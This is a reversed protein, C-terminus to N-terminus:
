QTKTREKKDSGNSLINAHGWYGKSQAKFVVLLFFPKNDHLKGNKQLKRTILLSLALM